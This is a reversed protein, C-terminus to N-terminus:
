GRIKNMSLPFLRNDVAAQAGLPADFFEAENCTPPSQMLLSLHHFMACCGRGNSAFRICLGHYVKLVALVMSGLFLGVFYWPVGGKSAAPSM